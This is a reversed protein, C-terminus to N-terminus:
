RQCSKQWSFALCSTWFPNKGKRIHLGFRISRMESWCSIWRRVTRARRRRKQMVWVPKMREILLVKPRLWLVPKSEKPFLHITCLIQKNWLHGEHMFFVFNKESTNIRCAIYMCLPLSSSLLCRLVVLAHLGHTVPSDFAGVDIGPDQFFLCVESCWLIMIHKPTKSWHIQCINRKM